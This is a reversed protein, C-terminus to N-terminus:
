KMLIFSSCKVSIRVLHGRRRLCPDDAARSSPNLTRIGSTLSKYTEADPQDGTWLIEVSHPTDSHSRSAEVTLLGQGIIPATKGHPFFCQSWKEKIQKYGWAGEQKASLCRPKTYQCWSWLVPFGSTHAARHKTRFARPLKLRLVSM